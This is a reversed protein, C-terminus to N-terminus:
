QKLAIQGVMGSEYHGPMNCAFEIKASGSFKWTVEISEGPELLVSNPEDHDMVHGGGMDMRMRERHIKDFEIVGHELMMRMEAQHKGHMEATGLNFEHVLSGANRVVFKVTEGPSVVLQEPEYYNDAMVVEVTRQAEAPIGPLGIAAAHAHGKDGGAGGLAPAALGLSAVALAIPFTRQLRQTFRLSM